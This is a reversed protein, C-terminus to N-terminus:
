TTNDHIIQRDSGAKDDATAQPGISSLIKTSTHNKDSVHFYAQQHVHTVHTVGLVMADSKNVM